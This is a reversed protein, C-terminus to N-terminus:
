LLLRQISRRNLFTSIVLFNSSSILVEELQYSEYWEDNGEVDDSCLGDLWRMEAVMRRSCKTWVNDIIREYRGSTSGFCCFPLTFLEDNVAGPRRSRDDFWDNLCENCVFKDLVVVCPIFPSFSESASKNILTILHTSQNINQTILHKTTLSQKTIGSRNVICTKVYLGDRGLVRSTSEQQYTSIDVFSELENTCVFVFTQARDLCRIHSLSNGRVRSGIGRIHNDTSEWIHSKYHWWARRWQHNHRLINDHNLCWITM